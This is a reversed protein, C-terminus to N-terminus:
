FSRVSERQLALGGASYIKDQSLYGTIAPEAATGRQIPLRNEIALKKDPSMMDWEYSYTLFSYFSANDINAGPRIRGPDDDGTVGGALDQATYRLMPEIWQDNRRFGYSVTNLCDSKLLEIVEAEYKAISENSPKGYFRQMRKLDTAVKAAMHRAHTVTFTKTETETYAYTM